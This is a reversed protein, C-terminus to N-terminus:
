DMIVCAIMKLDKDGNNTISHGEGNVTMMTDGAQIKKETGNDDVIGEGELIHYFEM